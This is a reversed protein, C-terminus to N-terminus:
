IEKILLASAYGLTKKKSPFTAAMTMRKAFEAANLCEFCQFKPNPRQLCQFEPTLHQLCQIESNACGVFKFETNPREM